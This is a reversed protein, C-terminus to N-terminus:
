GVPTRAQRCHLAALILDAAEEVTFVGTNVILDYNAPNTPDKRFHEKVFATRAHELKEIHRRAADHGEGLQRAIVGVRFELPAVLRVRLVQDGSLVQAAGRGVIVCQGRAALGLVTQLLHEVYDFGTIVRNSSFARFTDIVWNGPREDLSELLQTRLKMDRAVREVLENDYVSWGLRQGLVRGVTTALAGVERSLAITFGAPTAPQESSRRAPQESRLLPEGLRELLNRSTM